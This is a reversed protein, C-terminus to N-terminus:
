VLSINIHFLKTKFCELFPYCVPAARARTEEYRLNKKLQDTLGIQGPTNKDSLAEPPLPLHAGRRLDQYSFAKSIFNPVTM